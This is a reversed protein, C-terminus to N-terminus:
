LGFREWREDVLRRYREKLEESLFSRTILDDWGARAGAVEDFVSGVTEENLGLQEGAFYDVLLQRTVGRKRGKLPIALDEPDPLLIATNVLDYAPSLSIVGNRDTIISFNKLHMDDNGTLLAVVTRRLLRVRDIVPFSCYKTIARATQEMSSRYKTSRDFGLIQAFDEVPLKGGRPTRDFREIFYCLQSDDTWLLGHLPTEVGAHAALRMTLDENAPLDPWDPTSPKLIYRSNRRVIEFSGEKAHLVAGVKNQVGGISMRDAMEIGRHRIEEMRPLRKLATLYRSIRRLGVGSYLEETEQLPQYTLPCFRSLDHNDSM